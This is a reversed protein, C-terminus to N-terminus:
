VKVFSQTQIQHGENIVKLLYIGSNLESIDLTKGKSEIPLKKVFQGNTNYILLEGNIISEDPTSVIIQTTAPNPYILLSNNAISIDDVSTTCDEDGAEVLNLIEFYTCGNEDILEAVATTVPETFIMDNWIVTDSCFLELFFESPTPEPVTLITDQCREGHTIYIGPSLSSSACEMIETVTRDFFRVVLNVSDACPQTGEYALFFEGEEEITLGDYVFIEDTCVNITDSITQPNGPTVTLFATFRCGNSSILPRTYDGASTIRRDYWIITDNDCIELHTFTDPYSEKFEFILNNNFPCPGMGFKKEVITTDSEILVGEHIFPEGECLSYHVSQEPPYFSVEM